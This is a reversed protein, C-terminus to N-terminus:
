ETVRLSGIPSVTQGEQGFDLRSASQESSSEKATEREEGRFDSLNSTEKCGNGNGM